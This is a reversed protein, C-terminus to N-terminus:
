PIQPAARLFYFAYKHSRRQCTCLVHRSTSPHAHLKPMHKLCTGPVPNFPLKRGQPTHEWQVPISPSSSAPLSDGAGEARSRSQLQTQMAALAWGSLAWHERGRSGKGPSQMSEAAKKQKEATSPWSVCIWPHPHHVAMSQTVQHSEECPSTKNSDLAALQIQQNRKSGTSKHVKNVWTKLRM